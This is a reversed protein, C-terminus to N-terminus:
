KKKKPAPKSRSSHSFEPDQGQRAVTNALDSLNPSTSTDRHPVSIPNGSSDEYSDGRQPTITNSISNVQNFDFKRLSESMGILGGTKEMEKNIEVSMQGKRMAASMESSGETLQERSVPTPEHPDGRLEVHLYPVGEATTKETYTAQKRSRSQPM